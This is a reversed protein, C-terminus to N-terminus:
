LTSIKLSSPEGLNGQLVISRKNTHLHRLIKYIAEIQDVEGAKEALQALSIPTKEQAIVQCIKRQLDL